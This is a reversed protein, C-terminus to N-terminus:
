DHIDGLQDLIPEIARRIAAQWVIAQRESRIRARREGLEVALLVAKGTVLRAQFDDQQVTSWSSRLTWGSWSARTAIVAQLLEQRGSSEGNRGADRVNRDFQPRRSSAASHLAIGDLSRPTTVDTHLGDTVARRSSTASRSSM